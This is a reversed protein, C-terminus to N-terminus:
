TSSTFFIAVIKNNDLYNFLTHSVGNVDNATFNVATNLPTQAIIGFGILMFFASITFKKKM